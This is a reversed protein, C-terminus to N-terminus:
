HPQSPIIVLQAQLRSTAFPPLICLCPGLGFKVCDLLVKARQERIVNRKVKIGAKVLHGYSEKFVPGEEFGIEEADEKTASCLMENVGSWLVCGMYMACPECDCSSCLFIYEKKNSVYRMTFSDAKKQAFKIAVSLARFVLPALYTPAGHSAM